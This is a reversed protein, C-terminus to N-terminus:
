NWQFNTYKVPNKNQSICPLKNGLYMLVPLHRLILFNKEGFNYQCERGKKPPILLWTYLHLLMLILISLRSFSSSEFWHYTCCGWTTTQSSDIQIKIARRRQDHWQIDILNFKFLFSFNFLYIKKLLLFASLHVSLCGAVPVFLSGNVSVILSLYVLISLSRCAPVEQFGSVPGQVFVLVPVPLCLSQYKYLYLFLYLYLCISHVSLFISVPVSLYMTVSVTVSVSTLVSLSVFVLIFLSITVSIFLCMYTNGPM